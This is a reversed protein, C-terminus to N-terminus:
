IKCNVNQNLKEFFCYSYPIFGTEKSVCIQTRSPPVYTVRLLYRLEVILIVLM